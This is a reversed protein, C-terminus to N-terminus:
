AVTITKTQEVMSGDDDTWKMVLDGTAPVTFSFQFYPNTSIAPEFVASVVDAGGFTASFANIIKRPIVNGDGDKRQGSEMPHNVLTKITVMEGAAATKPAKVRAKAM